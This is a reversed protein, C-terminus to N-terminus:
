FLCNYQFPFNLTNSLVCFNNVIILFKVKEYKLHLVKFTKVNIKNLRLNESM